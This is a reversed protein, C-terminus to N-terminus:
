FVLRKVGSRWCADIVNAEVALNSQIFEAPFTNNALIGGVRAAALFVYGPREKAFFRRVAPPDTLELEAHTRVLLTRYGRAELRRAIASGALGRHGAVYVRSDREPPQSM